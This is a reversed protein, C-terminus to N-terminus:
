SFTTDTFASCPETEPSEHHLWGQLTLVDAPQLAFPAIPLPMGPVMDPLPHVTDRQLNSFSSGARPVLRPYPPAAFQPQSHPAYPARILFNNSDLFIIM